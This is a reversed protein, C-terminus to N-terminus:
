CLVKKKFEYFKCALFGALLGASEIDDVNFWELIRDEVHRKEHAYVEERRTESSFPTFIILIKKLDINRYTEGGNIAGREIYDKVEEIFQGTCKIARMFRLVDKSDNKSEVQILDIHVNYIPVEFSFSKM